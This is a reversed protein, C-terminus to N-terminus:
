LGQLATTLLIGSAERTPVLQESHRDEVKDKELGIEEFTFQLHSCKDQSFKMKGKSGVTGAQQSRILAQKQWPNEHCTNPKRM